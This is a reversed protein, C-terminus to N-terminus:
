FIKCTLVAIDDESPQGATYNIIEEELQKSIESPLFGRQSKLFSILREQEFYEGQPNQLDALGDTFCVILDDQKLELKGEHIEPLKEFAGIVSCGNELREIDGNKRVLIPPYHGANVYTITKNKTDVECIFFTIFKDSKTIRYVAQNLAFVFTELDRYQFILSQIMAQFNAMLIAAGVGKGSIDAICLAFRHEDYVIFDIYDGGVNYHPQYIKSVEYKNNKPFDTPILLEQVDKALEMERKYREQEIQRKFLRKNEIAVSVINTITTIFQIKNYLDEKDKIGGILSYAIANEKHFVPIIINFNQLLENDNAKITHMRKYETLVPALKQEEMDDCDIHCVCNWGADTSVMLAMKEIGMEWSLFSRYMDFLGEQSVNDNIAQTITLLSRIQLQKLSLEKELKEIIALERTM